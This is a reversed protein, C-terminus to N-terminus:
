QDEGRGRGRSSRAAGSVPLMSFVPVRPVGWRLELVHARHRRVLHRVQGHVRVVSSLDVQRRRQIGCM